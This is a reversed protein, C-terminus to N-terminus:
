GSTSRATPRPRGSPTALGAVEEFCRIASLVARHGDEWREVLLRGGALGDGLRCRFWDKRRRTDQRLPSGCRPCTFATAPRAWWVNPAKAADQAADPEDAPRENVM